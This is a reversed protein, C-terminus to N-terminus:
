CICRDESSTETVMKKHSNSKTRGTGYSGDARFNGQSFRPVVLIKWVLRRVYPLPIWSISNSFIRVNDRGALGSSIPRDWFKTGWFPHNIISLEILIPHNPPVMIRPFVWIPGFFDEGFRKPFNLQQDQLHKKEFEGSAPGRNTTVPTKQNDGKLQELNWIIAVLGEQLWGWNGAARSVQLWSTSHDELLAHSQCRPSGMNGFTWTPAGFGMFRQQCSRNRFAMARFSTKSGMGHRWVRFHKM